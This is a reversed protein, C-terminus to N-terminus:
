ACAPACARVQSAFAPQPPKCTNDALMDGRQKALLVQGHMTHAHTPMSAHAQARTRTRIRTRIHTHRHACTRTRTRAHTHARTSSGLETSIAIKFTASPRACSSYPLLALPLGVDSFAKKAIGLGMEVTGIGSCFSTMWKAQVLASEQLRSTGINDICWQALKRPWMFAAVLGRQRPVLVAPLPTAAVDDADVDADM